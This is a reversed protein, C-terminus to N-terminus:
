LIPATRIARVVAATAELPSLHGTDPIVVYDTGPYYQDFAARLSAETEVADRAGIVVRNPVRVRAARDRIDKQMGQEPWARKAAPPSALTDEVIQARQAHTLPLRAMIGIARAVGEETSYNRVIEARQEPPVALPGPPAPAVLILGKLGAPQRAAVIQAVKGGMSHGLLIFDDLGFHALVAEVDSALTDLDYDNSSKDSRGWGRFDIALCRHTTSLDDIVGSWTRTSGGYYHLFVLVPSGEGRVAVNLDVGNVHVIRNESSM